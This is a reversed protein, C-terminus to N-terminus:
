GRARYTRKPVNLMYKAACLTRQLNAKKVRMDM